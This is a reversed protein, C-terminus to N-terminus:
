WGEETHHERLDLVEAASLERHSLSAEMYEDDSVIRETVPATM